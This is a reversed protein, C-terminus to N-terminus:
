QPAQKVARGLWREDVEIDAVLTAPGRLTAQKGTVDVELVGGPNHVLARQACIGLASAALVAAVSGTGCARTEGAGREWVRLMLDGNGIPAIWEINAGHESELAPGFAEIDLSTLESMGGLVVVLHPNGVSVRCARWSTGGAAIEIGEDVVVPEGMDVEALVSAIDPNLTVEVGRDGADTVVTFRCEAVLGKHLAAQAFCRIGNGSMEAMSGDANRLEMRLSGGHEGLTARMIGDAGLGSRRDCLAKALEPGIPWRLEPDVVVLFDNGAGHHKSLALQSSPPQSSPPQTTM